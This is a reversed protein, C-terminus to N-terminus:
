NTKPVATITATIESKEGDNVPTQLLKTSVKVYTKNGASVAYNTIANGTQDCMIAKVEFMEENTSTVTVTISEADIDTSGNEIELIAYKEENKTTLGLFSVNASAAKSQVTVDVGDSKDTNIGTFYVKFNEQKSVATANGNITLTVNTIAAYGIGMFIVILILIGLIVRKQKNM